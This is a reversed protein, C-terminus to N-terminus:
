LIATTDVSVDADMRRGAQHVHGHWHSQCRSSFIQLAGLSWSGLRSCATGGLLHWHLRLSALQNKELLNRPGHAGLENKAPAGRLCRLDDIRMESSSVASLNSATSARDSGLHSCGGPQRYPCSHGSSPPARVLSPYGAEECHAPPASGCM